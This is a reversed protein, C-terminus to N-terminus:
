ENRKMAGTLIEQLKNKEGELNNVQRLYSSELEKLSKKLKEHKREMMELETNRSDLQEKLELL